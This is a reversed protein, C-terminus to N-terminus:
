TFFLEPEKRTQCTKHLREAIDCIKPLTIRRAGSPCNKVCAACWICRDPDTLPVGKDLRIANSPCHALCQGCQMCLAPDSEAAAGSPKMEPKYPRNDPIQEPNLM